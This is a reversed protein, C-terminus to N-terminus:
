KEEKGVDMQNLQVCLNIKVSLKKKELYFRKIFSLEIVM